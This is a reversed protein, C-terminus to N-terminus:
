KKLRIRYKLLRELPLYRNRRDMSEAVTRLVHNWQQANMGGEQDLILYPCEPLREKGFRQAFSVDVNLAIAYPIMDFYYESNLATINQLQEQPVTKLYRRLGLTQKRLTKGQSSRRGGLAWLYGAAWQTLVAGLAVFFEGTLAGLLLWLGSIALAIYMRQQNWLYLGAAWRQIQWSALFGLAAWVIIWFWQLLAGGSIAIGMSVGGFLGVLAVLIRFIKASGSKENVLPQVPPQMAAVSRCLKAYFLSATDVVDGRRFLEMFCKREFNSRENEMDMRRHIRVRDNRGLELLVYGSQAWTFIMMTLDVGQLHLVTALHGATFGEPPQVAYAGFSPRNRLFLLWYLVALVAGVIMAIDDVDTSVVETRYHPFMQEDVVLTMTLTEHDKLAKLSNGYIFHGEVSYSLDKEINAQHYGSSFSPLTEIVGPLQVTFELEEVGYAFGSLLPLQLQRINDENVSVTGSLSYGVTVTFTAPVGAIVSDLEVFQQKGQTHTRVRSGNLTVNYAEAPVPFRLPKQQDVSITAVVSVRCTGDSSIETINQVRDVSAAEAASCIGLLVCICVALILIKRVFVGGKGM